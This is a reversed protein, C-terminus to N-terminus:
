GLPWRDGKLQLFQNLFPNKKGAPDLDLGIVKRVKGKLIRLKRRFEVPDEKYEGRGCGFDVVVSVPKLLANVQNFFAITGDVNTFGALKSEPYFIEAYKM